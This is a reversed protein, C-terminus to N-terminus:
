KSVGLLANLVEDASPEPEVEPEPDPLSAIYADLAEQNVEMSTVVDNEVTINVFGAPDTSYFVEYFEDPCEAYETPPTTHGWRQLPPRSGDTYANLKIIYM